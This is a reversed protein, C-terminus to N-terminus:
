KQGATASQEKLTYILPAASAPARAATTSVASPHRHLLFATLARRLQATAARDSRPRQASLLTGTRPAHMTGKAGSSGPVTSRAGERGVVPIQTHGM